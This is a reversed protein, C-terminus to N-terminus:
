EVPATVDVITATGVHKMLASQLDFGADSELAAEVAEGLAAGGQLAALFEFEARPLRAITVLFEARAVLLDDGGEGLDVQQDGAYEPQNIQWIRLLPFASRLLATAPHLTFRLAPYTEPDIQALHALALPAHAAAHFVRHYQWELRAVDPLYVLAAAPEYAALFADFQAGFEHLDGSTSAYCAIYRDCAHRFFQEGVLREIVPYVAQLAGRYNSFVNNRYVEFRAAASVGAPDILVGIAAHSSHSAARFPQADTDSSHSAARFPQADARPAAFLASLFERQTGALSQM